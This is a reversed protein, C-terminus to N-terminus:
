KIAIPNIPSGTGGILKLPAITLFFRYRGDAACHEALDELWLMELVSVGLRTILYPHLPQLTGTRTSHTQESAMTDTGYVPVDHEHFWRAIAETYTIGPENIATGVYAPTGGRVYRLYFGTRLLVIDRPELTIGQKNAAAALDDATIEEGPELMDRGKLRPIDLLVASGAIGREAVRHIGNRALGGITTEADYGNYLTGDYWVHGLADIQTTGHPFLHIVDDAYEWGRGLSDRKGAVYSGRDSVMFHQAPTRPPWVLDGRPDGIPLGLTFLEGSRVSSAGRLVERADLVNLMGLEDDPGWRGWNSPADTLIQAISEAM